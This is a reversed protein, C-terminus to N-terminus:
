RWPTLSDVLSTLAKLVGGLRPAEELARNVALAAALAPHQALAGSFEADHAREEAPFDSFRGPDDLSTAITRRVAERDTTFDHLIRLKKDYTALAVQDSPTLGAALFQDAAKRAATLGQPVSTGDEFFLIFRRPLSGAPVAPAPAPAAVAPTTQTGPVAMERYELTSVPAVKGDVMLVFDRLTLGEVPGGRDDTAYAEILALESTIREILPPPKEAGGPRGPESGEAPRLLLTM